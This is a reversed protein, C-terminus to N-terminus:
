KELSSLILKHTESTWHGDVAFFYKDRCNQSCSSVAAGIVKETDLIDSNQFRNAFENVLGKQTISIDAPFGYNGALRGKSNQNKHAWGAGVWVFTIKSDLDNIVYQEIDKTISLFDDFAKKHREPWCDYKKSFVLYDFGLKRSYESGKIEDLPICNLYDSASFANSIIVPEDHDPQLDKIMKLNSLTTKTFSLLKYILTAEVLTPMFGTAKSHLESSVSRSYSPMVDNTMLFIYYHSDVKGIRKVADFYQIPNWSSYGLGYAFNDIKKNWMGYITDQYELEDAQIFSDGILIKKANKLSSISGIPVRGGLGDTEIEIFKGGDDAHNLRTAKINPCYNYLVWDLDCKLKSRLTKDYLAWGFELVILLGLLVALNIAITKTWSM